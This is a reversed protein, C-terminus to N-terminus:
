KKSKVNNVFFGACVLTILLFVIWPTFMYAFEPNRMVIDKGIIPIIGFYVVGVCFFLGFAGFGLLIGQIWRALNKQTM